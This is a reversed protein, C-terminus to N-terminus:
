WGTDRSGVVKIGPHGDANHVETNAVEVSRMLRHVDVLQQTRSLPAVPTDTPYTKELPIDGHAIRKDALVTQVREGEPVRVTDILDSDDPRNPAEEVSRFIWCGYQLM